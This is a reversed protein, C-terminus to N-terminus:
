RQTSRPFESHNFPSASTCPKFPRTVPRKQAEARFGILKQGKEQLAALFIPLGDQGLIHATTVIDLHTDAADLETNCMAAMDQPTQGTRLRRIIVHDTVSM